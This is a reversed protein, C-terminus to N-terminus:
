KGGAGQDASNIQKLLKAKSYRRRLGAGAALLGTGFLLLSAPEPTPTPTTSNTPPTPPTSNPPEACSDCHNIFVLPVAALFFFTWKPFDGEAILIEGCDCITGEVEGEEIIDIGIGQQDSTVTLGSLLSDTKTPDKTPGTKPVKTGPDQSVLTNLTLETQGQSGVTQVVQNLRVPEALAPVATSFFVILAAALVHLLHTGGFPPTKGSFQALTLKM